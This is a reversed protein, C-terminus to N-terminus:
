GLLATALYFYIKDKVKEFQQIHLPSSLTYMEPRTRDLLHEPSGMVPLLIDPLADRVDQPNSCKSLLLSFGQDFLVKDANFEKIQRDYEQMEPLLSDHIADQKMKGQPVKATTNTHFFGKYYFGDTLTLESHKKIINYRLNNLYNMQPAMLGKVISKRANSRFADLGKREQIQAFTRVDFDKRQAELVTLSDAM